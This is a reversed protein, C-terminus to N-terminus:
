KADNNHALPKANKPHFRPFFRGCGADDTSTIGRPDCQDIGGVVAIALSAGVLSPWLTTKGHCWMRPQLRHCHVVRMRAM